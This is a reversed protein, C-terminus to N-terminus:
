VEMLAELADEHAAMTEELLAPWNQYMQRVIELAIDEKSPFHWYLAGKTMGTGALIDSVSASAYGRQGFLGAAAEMILRRTAASDSARGRLRPLPAPVDGSPSAVTM